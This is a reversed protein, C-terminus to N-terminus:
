AHMLVSKIEYERKFSAWKQLLLIICLLFMQLGPLRENLSVAECNEATYDIATLMCMMIIGQTNKKVYQLQLVIILKTEYRNLFFKTMNLSRQFSPVLLELSNSILQCVAGYLVYMAYWVRAQGKLVNWVYM